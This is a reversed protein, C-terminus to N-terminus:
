YNKKRTQFETNRYGILKHLKEYDTKRCDNFGKEKTQFDILFNKESGYIEIFIFFRKIM